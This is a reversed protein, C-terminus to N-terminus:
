AAEGTPTVPDPHVTRTWGCRPCGRGTEGDIGAWEGCVLWATPDSCRCGRLGCGGAWEAPDPPDPNPVRGAVLSYEHPNGPIMVRYRDPGNSAQGIVLGLTGAPHGFLEHLTRVVASVGLTGTLAEGEPDATLRPALDDAVGPDLRDVM